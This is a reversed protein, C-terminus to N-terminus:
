PTVLFSVILDAAQAFKAEELVLSIRASNALGFDTGPVMVVGDKELIEECIQEGHDNQKPNKKQYRLFLPAKSFDLLYYFASDVPYWCQLIKAETFKKKLYQSNNNLRSLIPELFKGVQTLDYENLATQVLSNAGSTTQGQLKALALALSKVAICYGFRLGTGALKKSIGGCIITRKLLEPHKQYFYTPSPGAYNLDFYIEDSIVILEKNEKDLLIKALGDMWEASYMIGAPNSPSNLVIAKPRHLAIAKKIETLSPTFNDEIRSTVVVSQGGFLKVMEPYSIWYPALMLVKDNNDVLCGFINMLSHKGGNSIVCDFEEGTAAFNIERKREVNKILKKRLDPYGAAPSYQFSKLEKLQNQLAQIFEQPPFIPLQGATLNFVRKGTEALQNAKANLKLTISENMEKVRSALLM